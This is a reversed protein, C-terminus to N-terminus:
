IISPDEIYLDYNEAAYQKIWELYDMMGSNGLEDIDKVIAYWGMDTKEENRCAPCRSRLMNDVQGDTVREGREYIANRVMPIVYHYYYGKMAESTGSHAVSFRAMIRDGKHSKMFENVEDMYLSVKGEDNVIGTTCIEKIM